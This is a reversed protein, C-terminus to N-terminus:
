YQYNQDYSAPDAYGDGDYDYQSYQYSSDVAYHGPNWIWEQGNWMWQGSVWIYGPVPEINEVLMQPRVRYDYYRYKVVPRNYVRSIGGHFVYRNQNVYVPRRNITYRPARRM